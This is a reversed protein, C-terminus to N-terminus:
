VVSKRDRPITPFVIGIDAAPLATRIQHIMVDLGHALNNISTPPGDHNVDNTGLSVVVFEPDAWGAM